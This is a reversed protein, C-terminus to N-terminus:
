TDSGSADPLAVSAAPGPAQPDHLRIEFLCPPDIM